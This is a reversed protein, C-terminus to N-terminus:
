HQMQRPVPDDFTPGGSYSISMKQKVNHALKEIDGIKRLQGATLASPNSGEIETNLEQALKVLKDTDSVLSKQREVNLARLQREAFMPDRDRDKDAAADFPSHSQQDIRNPLSQQQGHLRVLFVGAAILVCGLAMWSLLKGASLRPMRKGLQDIM